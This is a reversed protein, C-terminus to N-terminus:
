DEYEEVLYNIIKQDEIDYGTIIFYLDFKVKRYVITLYRGSKLVGHSVFSMDKRRYEIYNGEFFESIEEISIGHEYLHTMGIKDDEYVLFKINM